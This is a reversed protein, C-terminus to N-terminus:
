PLANKKHVNVALSELEPNIDTMLRVFNPTAALSRQHEPSIELHFSTEGSPSLCGVEVDLPTYITLTLLKLMSAGFTEVKKIYGMKSPCQEDILDVSVSPSEIINIFLSVEHHSLVSESYNGAILDVPNINHYITTSSCGSGMIFLALTIFLQKM